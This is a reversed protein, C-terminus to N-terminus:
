PVQVMEVDDVWVKPQHGAANSALQLSITAGTAGDPAAYPVAVNYFNFRADRLTKWGEPDAQDNAVWVAGGPRGPPVRWHVWVEFAAYGRGPGAEKKEPALGESRFHLRLTYHKGGVVPVTQTVNVYGGGKGGNAAKLFDEYKPATYAEPPYTVPTTQELLLSQTGSHAGGPVLRASAGGRQEGVVWDAEAPSALPSEFGGNRVPNPGLPMELPGWDGPSLRAETTLDATIRTDQNYHYLRLSRGRGTDDAYIVGVDGRLDETGAADMRLDSQPVAAELTYSGAGRKFALRANPLQVIRDIRTAMLQVPTQTGPVVARYLVAVPRGAYVGLLLREDGEAPAYHVAGPRPSLMLDVCDGSLFLTQWNTGKNVLSAGRVAYALYLNRADRALAVRATRGEGGDLTVGAAMDWGSLSGDIAPPVEAWAVHIIPPPAAPKPDPAARAATAAQVDAATLRLSEEFRGGTLGTIRLLHYADNAGNIIEPVGGPSQYTYRYSEDWKAAPGLRTDDLLTGVYLGDTTLLYPRYNGHWLWTVLVQGLGPVTFEGIVADALVDKVGQKSIDPRAVSWLKTGDRDFCALADHGRANYEYGYSVMLRDDATVYLSSINGPEDTLLLRRAHAIDYVPAGGATWGSVDVRYVAEKDETFGAFTVSGDPGVAAGWGLSWEPQVGEAHPAYRSVTRSWRMEGPQVLCDGDADTWSFNDGSHSRFSDPYWNPYSHTHLDSDWDQKATGDGSTLRSLGGLAAVPRLSDGDRRLVTVIGRDGVVALYQKGDHLFSRAAPAGGNASPLFPQDKEMRRLPTSVPVATRRTEDVRWFTGEAYVRAPDTPDRWFPPAGGYPAPGLYDRVFAGTQADWVSVRCPSNDDEAVWLRGADTVALGRPVLMGNPDWAGVWPRGGPRGIARLFTGTPSFVKVQFSAGWDSVYVRGAADTTVDHPAALDHDILATVRRTAPDVRVVSTGSVALLTGDALARLGAPKPLPIEDVKQATAADLVLIKDDYNMAVYVRGATAAVGLASTSEGADTSFYRPQGGYHAADFTKNKRMEWLPTVAERYPWTAVRLTPDHETFRAPRGTRKNLCVLIAREIANHGNFDGPSTLEPGSYLAYLYDGSLALSVCRPFFEEHFAWQRQGREDVAILTSGKESGPAALFVWKGDTAAGQPNAEDSLWDGTDDATPWPPSGPNGLTMRYDLGLPAHYVAKIRYTGAPIPKGYQDLGDWREANRGAGRREGRVIWRLLRGSADFVGLTLDGEKPLAYSCTLAGGTRGAVPLLLLLLAVLSLRLFRRRLM